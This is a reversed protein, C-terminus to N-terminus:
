YGAPTSVGVTCVVWGRESARWEGPGLGQRPWRLAPAHFRVTIAGCLGM